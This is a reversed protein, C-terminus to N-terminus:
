LWGGNINIDTGTIYSSEKSAIFLALNAIEQPDAMRRLPIKEIMKQKYDAPVNKLIETDVLGPNIANVTINYRALEKALSKTFGLIAAKSASYNTQGFDGTHASISSLNIIRGWNGKIMLPVVEKTTNFVGYMNIKMVRDFNDFSMNKFLVNNVIGANNVLVDVKKYKKLIRAISKHVQSPDSVDFYYIGSQPSLKKIQSILLTSESNKRVGNLLVCYGKHAFELAIARGIGRTSGTILAIKKM